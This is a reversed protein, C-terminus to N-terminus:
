KGMLRDIADQVQQKYTEQFQAVTYTGDCILGKVDMEFGLNNVNDLVQHRGMEMMVEFNHDQLDLDKGTVGYWWGLTEPDDRVALAEDVTYEAGTELDYGYWNQWEYIFNFVLEPDEVGVPIVFTSNNTIKQANTEPDGHPGYPYEVFVMDFELSTVEPDNQFNYDKNSDMIWAANPSFAVKGERYLWRCIDWGNEAPTPYVVGDVLNLDQLFQLAETTEPSTLGETTGAAVNGGNALVFQPWYDGIWGGFGYVDNTGDGDTDKTLAICYERFKDWTWEGREALDRPDELNAEEIMQLNFSLPLTSGVMNEANNACLLSVAGSGTDIYSLVHDTGTIVPHDAPLVDRLDVLYGNAAAPAAKEVGLMYVDADPTGAMVSTNISEAAGAYLMNIFEFRVGLKEEIRKVNAFMMEDSLNGTYYPNSDATEHTSDWYLDWTTAVYITRPEEASAFSTMSLLLALALVLAAFKKM